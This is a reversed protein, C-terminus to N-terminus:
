SISWAGPGTLALDENPGLAGCVAFGGPLLYVADFPASVMVGTPSDALWSSGRVATFTDIHAWTLGADGIDGSKTWTTRQQASLKSGGYLGEQIAKAVTPVVWNGDPGQLVGSVWIGGGEEIVFVNGEVMLANGKAMAATSPSYARCATVPPLDLFDKGLGDSLFQRSMDSLVVAVGQPLPNRLLQAVFLYELISRHAFKYNGSADRHILSGAPLREIPIELSWENMLEAIESKPVFEAQRDARKSVIDLALKEAFKRLDDADDSGDSVRELWGDIMSAFLETATETRRESDVIDAIHALLLPRTCFEPVTQIAFDLTKERQWNEWKSYRRVFYDGIADATWPSLRYRVVQSGEGDAAHNSTSSSAASRMPMAEDRPLFQEHSTIVVRSFAKTMEILEDFRKQRGKEVAKWDEDFGDLFLVTEKPNRLKGILEDSDHSGLHILRITSKHHLKRHNHALYNLLFSTKGMGSGGLILMCRTPSKPGLFAEMQERLCGERALGTEQELDVQGVDRVQASQPWVYCRISRRVTDSDYYGQLRLSRISAESSLEIWRARREESSKRYVWWGIVAALLAVLAVVLGVKVLGSVDKSMLSGSDASETTASRDAFPNSQVPGSQASAVTAVGLTLMTFACWELRRRSLM